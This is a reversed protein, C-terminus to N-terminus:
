AAQKKKEAKREEKGQEKREEKRKEGRQEKREEKRGEETEEKRGNRKCLFYTEKRGGKRGEQWGERGGKRGERGGQRGEKEGCSFLFFLFFYSEMKKTLSILLLLNCQSIMCDVGGEPCTSRLVVSRGLLTVFCHYSCRLTVQNGSSDSSAFQFKLLFYIRGLFLFKNFTSVMNSNCFFVDLSFEFIYM